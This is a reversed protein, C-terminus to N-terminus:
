LINLRNKIYVEKLFVVTSKKPSKKLPVVPAPPTEEISIIVPPRPPLIGGFGGHYEVTKIKFSSPCSGIGYFM